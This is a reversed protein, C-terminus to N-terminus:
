ASTEKSCFSGQVQNRAVEKIVKAGQKVTREGQATQLGLFPSLDQINCYFFLSYPFYFGEHFHIHFVALYKHWKWQKNCTISKEGM